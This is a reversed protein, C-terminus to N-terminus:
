RADASATHSLAGPSADIGSGNDFFVGGVAVVAIGAAALAWVWWSPRGDAVVAEAIVFPTSPNDM